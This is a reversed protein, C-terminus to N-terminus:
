VEVHLRGVLSLFHSESRTPTAMRDPGTSAIQASRVFPQRTFLQLSCLRAMLVARGHPQPVRDQGCSVSAVAVSVDWKMKSGCNLVERMAEPHLGARRFSNHSSSRTSIERLAGLMPPPPSAPATQRRPRQGLNIM